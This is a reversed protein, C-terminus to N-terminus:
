RRPIQLMRNEVLPEPRYCVWGLRWEPQFPRKTGWLLCFGKRPCGAKPPLFLGYVGSDGAGGPSLRNRSCKAMFLREPRRFPLSEQSRYGNM